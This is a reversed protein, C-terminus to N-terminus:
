SSWENFFLLLILYIFFFVYTWEIDEREKKVQGVEEELKNDAFMKEMRGDKKVDKELEKEGEKKREDTRWWWLGGRMTRRGRGKESDGGDSGDLSAVGASAAAQRGKKKWERKYKKKEM